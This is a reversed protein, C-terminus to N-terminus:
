GHERMKWLLYDLDFEETDMFETMDIYIPLEDKTPEKSDSELRYSILIVTDDQLSIGLIAFDEIIYFKNSPGTFYIGASLRETIRHVSSSYEPKIGQQHEHEIILRSLLYELGEYEIPSLNRKM